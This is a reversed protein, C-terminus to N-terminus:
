VHPAIKSSFAKPRKPSTIKVRVPNRFGYFNWVHDMAKEVVDMNAGREKFWERLEDPELEETSGFGDGSEVSINIFDM